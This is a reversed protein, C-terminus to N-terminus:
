IRSLLCVCLSLLFGSERERERRSEVRAWASVFQRACLSVLISQSLSFHTETTPHMSSHVCSVVNCTCLILTLSLSSCFSFSLALTCVSSVITYCFRQFNSQIVTESWLVWVSSKLHLSVRKGKGVESIVQMVKKVRKRKRGRRKIM